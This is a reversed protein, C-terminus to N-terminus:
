SEDRKWTWFEGSRGYHREPAGPLLDQQWPGEDNEGPERFYRHQDTIISSVEQTLIKEDRQQIILLTEIFTM